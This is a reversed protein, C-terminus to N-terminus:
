LGIFEFTQKFQISGGVNSAPSMFIIKSGEKEQNASYTISIGKKREEAELNIVQM